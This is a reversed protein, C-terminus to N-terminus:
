IAWVLNKKILNLLKELTIGASFHSSIGPSNIPTAIEKYEWGLLNSILRVITSKGSGNTGTIITVQPHFNINLNKFQNWNELTLNKIM